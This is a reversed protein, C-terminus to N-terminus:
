VWLKVQYLVSMSKFSTTSVSIFHESILQLQLVELM